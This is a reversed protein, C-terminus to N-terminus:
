QKMNTELAYYNCDDCNRNTGIAHGCRCIDPETLFDWIVKCIRWIAYRM